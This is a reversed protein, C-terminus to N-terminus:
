ASSSRLSREGVTVILCPVIALTLPVRLVMSTGQGPWSDISLHGELEEVNTKVVDMGVGRGSVDTVKKATSFGPLLILSLLERSSM